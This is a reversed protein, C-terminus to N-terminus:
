GTNIVTKVREPGATRSHLLEQRWSRRKKKKKKENKQESEPVLCVTVLM